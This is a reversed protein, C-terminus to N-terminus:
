SSILLHQAFGSVPRLPVLCTPALQQSLQLRSMMGVYYVELVLDYASGLLTFDTM